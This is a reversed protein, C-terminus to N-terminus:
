GGGGRLGGAFGFGKGFREASFFDPLAANFVNASNAANKL